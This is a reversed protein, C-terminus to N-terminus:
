EGRRFQNRLFLDTLKTDNVKKTKLDIMSELVISSHPYFEKINKLKERYSELASNANLQMYESTINKLKVHTIRFIVYRVNENLNSESWERIEKPRLRNESMLKAQPEWQWIQGITDEKKSLVKKMEDLFIFELRLFREPDGTPVYHAANANQYKVSIEHNAYDFSLLTVGTVYGGLIQDKYLNFEKPVGGGIFAHKHSNRIPKKFENKVISRSIEPLHCNVCNKDPFHKKGEQLEDGTQFYCVLSKNLTYTENHCDLCRNQLLKPNLQIPHPPSSFGNATIVVSEGREDLRVHCTACTVGEDKMAQDFKTNTVEIPKFYDGGQLSNIITERQNQIPIHCNLCIWKPSSPKSLEAQFQLDSNAHAHTSTKWERYIETHCKGCNEARPPGVGKLDPLQEITKSWPKGPFVEEISIPNYYQKYIYIFSLGILFASFTLLIKYTKV